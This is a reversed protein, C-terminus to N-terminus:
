TENIVALSKAEYKLKFGQGENRSDSIFHVFLQNDTTYMTSIPSSGCFRGNGRGSVLPPAANDLGNKLEVYDGLSCSTDESKVQFPQEFHVAIIFGSTVVVHWSCNLNPTYDQPYNPSTIVGTGTHLYGGCGRAVTHTVASADVAYWELLFGKGTVSPDSQFQITIASGSSAFSAPDAGCYTAIPRSHITPGDYVQPTSYVLSLYLVEFLLRMTIGM